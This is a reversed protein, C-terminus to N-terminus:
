LPDRMPTPTEAPREFDGQWSGALQNIIKRHEEISDKQAPLKEVTIRVDCNAFDPSLSHTLVSDSGVHTTITLPIM